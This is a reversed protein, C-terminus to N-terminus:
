HSEDNILENQRNFYGKVQKSASNLSQNISLKVINFDSFREQAGLGRSCGEVESQAQQYDNPM